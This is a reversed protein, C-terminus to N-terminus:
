RLQYSKLNEPTQNLIHDLLYVNIYEEDSSSYIRSNSTDLKEMELISDVEKKSLGERLCEFLDLKKIIPSDEKFKDWEVYVQKAIDKFKKIDEETSNIIDVNSSEGVKGLLESKFLSSDKFFTEDFSINFTSKHKNKYVTHKIELLVEQLNRNLIKELSPILSNIGSGDYKYSAVLFEFSIDQKLSSYINDVNTPKTLSEFVQKFDVANVDKYLEVQMSSHNNRWSQNKKTKQLYSDVITWATDTDINKFIRILWNVVLEMFAKDDVYVVMRKKSDKSHQDIDKIFEDFSKNLNAFTDSYMLLEGYSVKDLENSMQIGYKESIVVRDFNIDILNDSVVYVKNFLHFM